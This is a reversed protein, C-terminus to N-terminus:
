LVSVILARVFDPGKEGRCTSARVEANSGEGTAGVPLNRLWWQCRGATAEFTRSATGPEASLKLRAMM